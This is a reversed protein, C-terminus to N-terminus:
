PQGAPALASIRFRFFEGDPWRDTGYHWGMRGECPVSLRGFRAYRTIEGGFPHWDWRGTVDPDGWRDFVLSTIRGAPDLRYTVSMPYPGLDYHLSVRDTGDATWRVGSGPLLSTPAWIAEAAVRGAASHSVDPGTGRAVTVLGGLKWRMEGVGDLYSDSGTIVGAVRASWLFGRHPTLTEDARFPLWRRGVRIRGTMRLRVTSTLPTGVEIAACLHRRVPEPLEEVAAPGFEGPSPEARILAEIGEHRGDM